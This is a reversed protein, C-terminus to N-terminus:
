ASTPFRRALFLQIVQDPSLLNGDFKGRMPEFLAFMREYGDVVQSHSNLHERGKFSAFRGLDEILFSAVSMHTAENNGDFGQYKVSGHPEAAAKVSAAETPTFKKQSAEIFSWMDLYNVVDKVVQPNPDADDGLLGSYQWDLAWTNDTYIARKVFKADIDSNIELKEHIESLMALMLKEPKTLKM